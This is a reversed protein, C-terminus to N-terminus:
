RRKRVILRYGIQELETKLSKFEDPTAPRTDALIGFYDASGHQGVHQYSVILPRNTEAQLDPFLAIVDGDTKFVRFIVRVPDNDNM